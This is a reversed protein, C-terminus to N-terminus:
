DLKRDHRLIAIEDLMAAEKKELHEKWAKDQQEKLTDLIKHDKAKEILDLQKNKAISQKKKYLSFLQQIQGRGYQIREDFRALELAIIGDKQKEELTSILQTLDEKALELTELAKEAALRAQVFKEQALNEERKRYKLISNLAFPKPPM